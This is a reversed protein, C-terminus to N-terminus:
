SGSNKLAWSMWQGVVIQGDGHSQAVKWACPETVPQDFSIVKIGAACARKIAPNLATPSGADVLIADPKSQVISNLSAVQAPTTNEANEIELKIKGKFPPQEATLQALKEMQPRFDNGLFNNSLVVRYVKDGGGSGGGGGDDKAASGSDSGCGAAALMAASAAVISLARATRRVVCGM